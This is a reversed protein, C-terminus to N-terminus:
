LSFKEWSVLLTSDKADLYIAQNPQPQIARILHDPGRAVHAVDISAGSDDLLTNESIVCDAHAVGTVAEVERFVVSRYFTEGLRARKLTLAKQLAARVASVVQEPDYEDTKVRVKIDLDLPLAEFESVSVRVGPLAHDQLYDRLEQQVDGLPAGGAPVVVVQVSEQRGYHTAQAFARAQWISSHRTALHTFDSLSVARGLTLVSAPANDRLQQVSEMANGGSAALPQYVSEVLAHSKAPKTFSEAAVNGSLGSGVRYQIRVNNTGTPLRRAHEGDGFGIQLYGDQDMRVTYHADSPASDNLSAVQRWSRGDVSVLIDAAVGSPQSADAVFSVGETELLFTQHSQTADGSGLIKTPKSEGHGAKVVNAYVRTNNVSFDCGLVAHPADKRCVLAPDITLTASDIDTVKALVAKASGNSVLVQRAKDLGSPIGGSLTLLNGTVKNSNVDYDKPRLTDAFLGYVRALTASIPENLTLTFADEDTQLAAIRRAYRQGQNDVLHLWQKSALEGPDGDFVLKDLSVEAVGGVAASDKPLYYVRSDGSLTKLKDALRTGRVSYPGIDAAAIKGLAANWVTAIARQDQRPFLLLDSGEVTQPKAESLLYVSKGQPPLLHGSEGGSLAIRRGAAAVVAAAYWSSGEKWAIISKGPVLSHDADLLVTNTGLLRPSQIFDPKVLLKMQHRRLKNHVDETPPPGKLWLGASLLQSVSVPIGLDGSAREAVLVACDGQSVDEPLSALPFSACYEDAPRHKCHRYHFYKQSKNWDKLYLKNLAADADLEALTEFVVPTSGDPPAYKVQLGKAVKGSKDEKLLLALATSASAPPAPHYDLMAVLRRLNDWQTVTGLYSENAYADLHENLVHTARALARAIEWAFDRRKAEYQDSLRELRERETEDAAIAVALDQWQLEGSSADTFQELLSRRLTELYGIANGDIYRFRSLGARNWRSLDKSM